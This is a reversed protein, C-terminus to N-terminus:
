YMCFSHSFYFLVMQASRYYGSCALKLLPISFSVALLKLSIPHKCLRLTDGGLFTKLIIFLFVGTLKSHLCCVSVEKVLHGLGVDGVGLCVSVMYGQYLVSFLVYM